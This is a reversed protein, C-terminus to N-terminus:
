FVDRLFLFGFDGLASISHAGASSSSPEQSTSPVVAKDSVQSPEDIDGRSVVADLSVEASSRNLLGGYCCCDTM